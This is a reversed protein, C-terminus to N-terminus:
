RILKSIYLEKYYYRIIRQIDTSDITSVGKKNRIKAKKRLVQPTQSNQKDKWFPLKKNQQSLTEKQRLTV